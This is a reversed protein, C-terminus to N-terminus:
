HHQDYKHIDCKACLYKQQKYFGRKVRVARIKKLSDDAINGIIEKRLYFCPLVNGEVDIFLHDDSILCRKDYKGALRMFFDHTNNNWLTVGKGLAYKRVARIINREKKFDPRKIKPNAGFFHLNMRVLHIIDIKWMAAFDIIRCLQKESIILSHIRISSKSGCRRKLKVLKKLNDIVKLNFQHYDDNGDNQLVEDLSISIFNINYDTLIEVFFDEDFYLLNTSINVRTKPLQEKLCSFMRKLDPNCFIEGIGIFSIYEIKGKMENKLNKIIKEFVDFSMNRKEMDLVRRFCMKCHMNCFTSVEISIDNPICTYRNFILRFFKKIKERLGATLYM